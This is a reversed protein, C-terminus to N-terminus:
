PLLAEPAGADRMQTLLEAVRVDDMEVPNGSLSNGRAGRALLVVGEADLPPLDAYRAGLGALRPVGLERVKDWAWAVAAPAGPGAGLAQAVRALRRRVEESRANFALVWPLAVACALGHPVGHIGLSQAIGHAAGLGGNALALGSLLAALAMPERAARDEGRSLASLGVGSAEVGRLALAETLPSGRRSLYSEVNQTLADLGSWVRVERPAGAQLEPDVLAVAPVMRSDRLSKKFRGERSSIVANKTVESGTGATTPCAILPLPPASLKLGRGVGELYDRVPAGDTQAALAAVAKGFDLTSGGGVAVVVDPEAARALPVAGDVDAEDPEGPPGPMETVDLGQALLSERVREAAASRGRVLLCRAGLPRALVGAEAARGPGFVVSGASVFDFTMVDYPNARAAATDQRPPHFRM